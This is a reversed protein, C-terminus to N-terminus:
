DLAESIMRAKKALTKAVIEDVSNVLGFTRVIVPKTQGIRHCRKAAQANTSPVWDMEVFAVQNAATLTIATSCATIQGIFVRCKPDSQFTDISAQRDATAMGGAVVVPNYDKLTNYLNQIADTHYAFIVIKDYADDQLEGAIQTAIPRSKAVGTLRRLSAIHPAIREIKESLDQETLAHALIADVAEKERPDEIHKTDSWNEVEIPTDQWWIPPLDKLVVESKRRLMMSKLITKFEAM